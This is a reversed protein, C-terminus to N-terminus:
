ENYGNGSFSIHYLSIILGYAAYVSLYDSSTKGSITVSLLVIIFIIIYAIYDVIKNNIYYLGMLTLSIGWSPNLGSDMPAHFITLLGLICLVTSFIYRNDVLFCILSLLLLLGSYYLYEFISESNIVSDIFNLCCVLFVLGAVLYRAINYRKM